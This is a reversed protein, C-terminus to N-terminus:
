QGARWGRCLRALSLPTWVGDRGSEQPKPSFGETLGNGRRLTASHGSYFLTYLTVFVNDPLSPAVNTVGLKKKNLDWSCSSPITYLSLSLVSKQPFCLFRSVCALRSLSLSM